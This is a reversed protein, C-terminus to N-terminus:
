RIIGDATFTSLRRPLHLTKADITEGGRGRGKVIEASQAVENDGQNRHEANPTVSDKFKRLHAM